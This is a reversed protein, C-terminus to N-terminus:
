LPSVGLSANWVPSSADASIEIKQIFLTQDIRAGGGPPTRFLRVRDGLDRAFVAEAVAATSMQPTISTVRQFPDKYKALLATAITASITDDNVPLDSISQSRKKYAAISTTDSSTQTLGNSRTVNWENVLFTESYDLNLDMYPLDTGDDDFTAQVTSWPSASRHAADLFMVTGDRAIFLMADVNEANRAKRLEDLPPQGTMRSGLMARTGVRLQRPAESGVADLVKGARIHPLDDWIFGRLGATYHALVRAAPLGFRYVALEDFQPNTTTVAPDGVRMFANADITAAFAGTFATLAVQVGDTYLRLNGGTITGVLHHWAGSATGSPLGVAATATYLTGGSNRAEISLIGTSNIYLRWTSAAGATPGKVLDGAGGALVDPRYWVEVTFESLGSVDGADGTLLPPTQLYGANGSVYNSYSVGEGGYIPGPGSAGMSAVANLQPGITAQQQMPPPDNMRWYGIPNDFMVVDAYTDRPPNTVPLRDLALLAFEDVCSIVAVADNPPAPWINDISAAYGVFMDQTAGSFQSRLWWRNMPKIAPNLTPDFTRDRNDVVVTATGADIDALENDRGRSTSFQRVKSSADTWAPVNVSVDSTSYLAWLL